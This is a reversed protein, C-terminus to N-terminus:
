DESIEKSLEQIEKNIEDVKGQKFGRLLLLEAECLSIMNDDTAYKDMYCEGSKKKKLSFWKMFFPTTKTGYSIENTIRDIQMEALTEDIMRIENNTKRLQDRLDRAAKFKPDTYLDRRMTDIWKGNRFIYHEKTDISIFESEEPIPKGLYYNTKRLKKFDCAFGYFSIQGDERM